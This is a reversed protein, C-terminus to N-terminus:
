QGATLIDSPPERLPPSATTAEGSCTSVLLPLLLLPVLALTVLAQRVNSQM